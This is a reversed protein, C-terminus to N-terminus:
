ESIILVVSEEASAVLENMRRATGSDSDLSIIDAVLPTIYDAKVAYNVNQPLSGSSRLAVLADLTATVIGIVKGRANILPGGSNGPQIPVDIQLFRFDDKIGTLANVRGFSAKLEQGQISILPFGLTFVDEGKQARSASSVPLPRSTVDIKLLAVDSSRDTRLHKAEFRVGKYVAYVVKAEEIVHYNTVIHGGSTVFFGTGTSFGKERRTEKPRYVPLEPKSAALAAKEKTATQAEDESMGFAFSFRNGRQDAGSGFGSTCSTAEWTADVIRGDDCKLRAEGKQGACYPILFAGAIYNSAPVFRVSSGGACRMKSNQGRVEIFSTGTMLDSNVTGTFVENYDEFSGVVPYTTTCGTLAALVFLALFAKALHPM